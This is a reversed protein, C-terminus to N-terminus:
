GVSNCFIKGTLRYDVNAVLMTYDLVTTPPLSCALFTKERIGENTSRPMPEHIFLHIHFFFFLLCCVGAFLCPM